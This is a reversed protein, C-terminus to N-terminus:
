ERLAVRDACTAMLGARVVDGGVMSVWGALGAACAHVAVHGPPGVHADVVAAVVRERDRSRVQRCFEAHGVGTRTAMPPLRVSPGSFPEVVPANGFPVMPCEDVVAQRPPVGTRDSRQSSQDVAVRGHHDLRAQEGLGGGQRRVGHAGEEGSGQVIGM